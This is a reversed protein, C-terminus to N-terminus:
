RSSPGSRFEVSGVFDNAVREFAEDLDQPLSRQSLAVNVAVGNEFPHRFVAGFDEVILYPATKPRNSAGFDKYKMHFRVMWVGDQASVTEVRVLDEFRTDNSDRARQRSVLTLFEEKSRLPPLRTLVVTGAFSQSSAAGLKGLSVKAPNDRVQTWGSGSPPRVSALMVDIREAQGALQGSFAALMLLAAVVGCKGIM